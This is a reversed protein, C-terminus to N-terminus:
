VPINKIIGLIYQRFYGFDISNFSGDKNLDAAKLGNADPFNSIMGLLYQRMYGFDISNALGDGNVDGYVFTSAKVAANEDIFATVWALPANWNITIENTSYSDIHDVYCKQAPYKGITYGLGQIYPDQLSSNPGGALCGPPPKPFSSNAQNAWFRHHPNQLANEGYGSVYSKYLPNRGLIYDMSETVANLYNTNKSFDYAYAMVIAVNVVASNSGWPYGTVSGNINYEDINIGYGQKNQISVMHDVAKKINERALNVDSQPLKSPVLALSITGLGSTTAWDFVGSEGLGLKTPMQLYHPSSKIYDLYKNEGTTIFLEAAAWYFDDKVYTDDYPGGGNGDSAPAYIEPNKVAAEWARQAAVLCKNAYETDYDKFLRAAQAATAALNLTAATSPPRLIRQMNDQHPALALGTWSVDHMKHHAMGAKSYGEPIQMKLLFDMEWKAEDLIDPIGNSSEPITMKGDAFPELKNMLKAREYQNMMTWVSIGGNVVYKGHDGADYWGGTVDLTYSENYWTGSATSARDPLHGAPRAWQSEVCYPLKIEIGSRNHYFYRLADYKLKSYIDESIDFTVSSSNGSTLKYNKGPTKFSSFDIIHVNDGSSKDFGFVSTTGSAVVRGNADVLSWQVPSNSNSVLTAEKRLEPIYGVNNVHIGNGEAAMVVMGSTIGNQSLNVPIGFTQGALIGLVLTGTVVLKKLM